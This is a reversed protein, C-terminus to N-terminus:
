SGAKRVAQTMIKQGPVYQVRRSNKFRRIYGWEIAAAGPDDNVVLRDDVMRGTGKEGPVTHISFNHIYAGTLRHQAAIGIAISQVRGAAADMEPSRGAIIAAQVRVNESVYAM